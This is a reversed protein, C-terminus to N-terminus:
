KNISQNTLFTKILQDQQYQGLIFCSLNTVHFYVFSTFTVLLVHFYLFNPLFMFYSSKLTKQINLTGKVGKVGEVLIMNM